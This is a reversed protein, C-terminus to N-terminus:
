SDAVARAARLAAIAATDYGLETLLAQSHEGRRPATRAVVAPTRDLKIPAGIITEGTTLELAMERQRAHGSALAAPLERVHTVCVDEGAFVEHWHALPEAGLRASLGARVTDQQAPVYQLPVLEACGALACLRAFFRPELAGVALRQDDATRYVDYCALGGALMATGSHYPAGQHMFTTAIPLLAMASDTLAIDIHQAEATRERHLLALLVGSVADHAGALDALQLNPLVPPGAPPYQLSLSGALAQYNIDHGADRARSGTDGYGTVSCTILRPHDRRLASLELGLRALTGPRFGELLLDARAILARAVRQGAQQKLDLVISEKGRRLTPLDIAAIASPRPPEVVIVRAGHDALIASCFPGPLMTTLDVVTYGTLAGM